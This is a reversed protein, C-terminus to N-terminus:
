LCILEFDVSRYNEKGKLCGVDHEQYLSILKTVTEGVFLSLGRMTEAPEQIGMLEKDIMEM